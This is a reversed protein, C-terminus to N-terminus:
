ATGQISVVAFEGTEPDCVASLAEHLQDKINEVFADTLAAEVEGPRGPDVKKGGIEMSLM